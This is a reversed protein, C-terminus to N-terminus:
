RIWQLFMYIVPATFLISDFRDMIGGHGPILTGYDKVDYNRKIASAALDGIQSVVGVVSCVSLCYLPVDIALIVQNEILCGYGLGLVAAGIIGGIAGEISKKPSLVPALKHKGFLKGVCYAFTDCGWAGIFILGVFYLGFESMRIQYIFSFMIPIYIVGLFTIAINNIEYKPFTLAYVVMWLILIMIVFSLTIKQGCMLLVYYIITTVYGIIALISKEAKIVRYLEFLGILSLLLILFGLANGGVKIILVTVILLVIGSALRTIFM